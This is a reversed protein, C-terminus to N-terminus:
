KGFIGERIKGCVGLDELHDRGKPKGVLVRYVGRGEETYAVHGAWRMRKSKIVGVINPSSYLSHLENDLRRWSGDEDRESGFIRLVTNEFVRLRHEV